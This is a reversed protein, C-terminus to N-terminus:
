SALLGSRGAMLQRLQRSIQAPQHLAELHLSQQPFERNGSLRKTRGVRINPRQLCKPHEIRVM